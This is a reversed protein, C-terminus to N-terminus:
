PSPCVTSSAAAEPVTPDFLPTLDNALAAYFAITDPADPVQLMSASLGSVLALAFGLGLATRTQNM